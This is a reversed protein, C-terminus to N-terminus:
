AGDPAGESQLCLLASAPTHFNRSVRTCHLERTKEMPTCRWCVGAYRRAASLTAKSPAGGGGAASVAPARGAAAASALRGRCGAAALARRPLM